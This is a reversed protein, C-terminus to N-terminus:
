APKFGLSALRAEIAKQAGKGVALMAIVAGVGIIIGLMSLASRVKNSAMARLASAGYEKFQAIRMMLSPEIHKTYTKDIEM